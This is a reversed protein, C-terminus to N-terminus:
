SYHRIEPIIDVSKYLSELTSLDKWIFIIYGAFDKGGGV